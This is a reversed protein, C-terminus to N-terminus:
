EWVLCLSPIRKSMSGGESCLLFNKIKVFVERPTRKKKTWKQVLSLKVKKVKEFKSDKTGISSEERKKRQNKKQRSVTSSLLGEMASMRRCIV